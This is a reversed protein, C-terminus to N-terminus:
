PTKTFTLNEDLYKMLAEKSEFVRQENRGEPAPYFHPPNALSPFLLKFGERLKKRDGEDDKWSEGAAKDNFSRTFATMADIMADIKQDPTLDPLESPDPDIQAKFDPPETLSVFYGNDAKSISISLGDLVPGGVIQAQAFPAQRM